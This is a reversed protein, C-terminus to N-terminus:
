SAKVKKAKAKNKAEPETDAKRKRKAPSKKNEGKGQSQSTLQVMQNCMKHLGTSSSFRSSQALNQKLTSWADPQWVDSVTDPALRKTQRASALALKLLEKLQPATLKSQDSCAKNALDVLAERLSPMFEAVAEVQNEMSRLQAILLELLQLSQAQRYSNIAQGALELISRRLKWAQAPQRQFFFKFFATNFTSNKRTLFDQLSTRYTEEVVSDNGAQVLIKSLYVSSTGLIEMLELGHARKAQGHLAKFIEAVEDADVASPHEKAKSIRSRLIGQAKERLQMEDQGSGAIVEVLPVIFRPTLANTPQKKMFIDVLDLVRNKFHTAERQANANKSGKKENARAQFVQALQTDIAMMQDDDMLEEDEEEDDEEPAPKIGHIRLAEEIKNRLELDIEEDEDDDGLDIEGFSEDSSSENDDDAEEDPDGGEEDDDDGGEEEEDDMEVDEDEDEHDNEALEAPTRRELQSVLLDITSEKAMAALYGFAQNAITRLYSTSAELFGIIVDALLDIPEIEEEEDGEVEKAKSNEREKGKKKSKKSKSPWFPMRSIAGITSEVADSDQGEGCCQLLILSLLLLEAGRAAERHEESVEKLKKVQEHAKTLLEKEEEELEIALAVHKQDEELIKVTAVVKAVWLEGDPAIASAKTTKDESQVVATHGSLDGLCTLLRNKCVTRIEESVPPNPVQRLITISSKTSKKKVVFLGYVTLWELVTQICEDSKPIGGNRILAAVQDVIWTRRTDVEAQDSEDLENFHSFLHNVYDQVGESTMSALISEVTKTKTLKDFQQSGNVGTLELILAFGLQPKDKVFAQVETVTQQAIKHLYRDKNSLHNIWSRMFNRTFLMPMTEDMVRKLASQFVQFGWYKRQPSSTSSFLSEDVVVKFFEQLSGKPQKKTNNPGPLLQELIVDWAFHLQPKWTGSPAKSPDKHGEEDISSEKLIRSLTQLNSSSLLNPNKFTPAVLKSWDREPYLDQLKLTLAFKEPSWLTISVFLQDLLFDVSEEKWAVESGDLADIALGITFWASERLWSKKDGLAILEEIVQKFSPSSSSETKSSASTALPATRVLLGSRIVSMFGFLRAFLMDREEQGNMSGQTKSSSLILNVIQQCTVTEIRSLLETLAVSFGLRSSERPSALGRVLRRISYAVDQSNLLDLEDPKRSSTAANADEDESDDSGPATNTQNAATTSPTFQSQFQELAGVLKVSADLRDKKSSSSLHWFLPLTTTM